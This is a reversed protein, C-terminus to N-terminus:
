RFGGYGQVGGGGGLIYGMWLKLLRWMHVAQIFGVVIEAVAEASDGVWGDDSKGCIVLHLVM